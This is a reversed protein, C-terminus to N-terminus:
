ADIMLLAIYLTELATYLTHTSSLILTVQINSLGTAGVLQVLMALGDVGALAVEQQLAICSLCYVRYM